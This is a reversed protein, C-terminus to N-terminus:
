WIVVSLITYTYSYEVYIFRKFYVQWLEECGVYLYDTWINTCKDHTMTIFSNGSYDSFCGLYIHNLIVFRFMYMISGKSFSMTLLSATCCTHTNCLMDVVLCGVNSQVVHPPDWKVMFYSRLWVVYTYLDVIIYKVVM